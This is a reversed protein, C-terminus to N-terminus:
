SSDTPETGFLHQLVKREAARLHNHFTPQSIGLTEAIEQGSQTRPWNYFGSDIATRLVELQRDTLLSRVDDPATPRNTPADRKAVRDVTVDDGGSEFFTRIQDTTVTEPVTLWFRHTDSTAVGSQVWGDLDRVRQFVGTDASQIRLECRSSTSDVADVSLDWQEGELARQAGQRVQQAPLDATCTVSLANQSELTLSPIELETELESALTTLPTSSRLHVDVTQWDTVVTEPNDDIADLCLATLRGLTQLFTQDTPTGSAGRDAGVFLVGSSRKRFTVPIAYVELEPAVDAGGVFQEVVNRSSRVTQREYAKEVFQDVVDGDFTDLQVPTRDSQAWAALELSGDAEDYYSAFAAPWERVFSECAAQTFQERGSTLSCSTILQRVVSSEAAAAELDATLRQVRNKYSHLLGNREFHRLNTTVVEAVVDIFEREREGFAGVSTSGLALLGYEDLPVLLESRIDTDPEGTVQERDPVYRSSRAEFPNWLYEDDPTVTRDPEFRELAGSTHSELQLRDQGSERVFLAVYSNRVLEDLQRVTQEVLQERSTAANLEGLADRLAELGLMDDTLETIVGLIREDGDQEVVPILSCRVDKPEGEDTELTIDVDGPTDHELVEACRDEFTQEFSRPYPLREGQRETESWGFARRAEENWSNVRLDHTLTFAPRHIQEPWVDRRTWSDSTTTSNPDATSRIMAEEFYVVVVDSHGVVTVDHWQNSEVSYAEFQLVDADGDRQEFQEELSSDGRPRFISDAHQGILERFDGGFHNEMSPSAYVCYYDPSLVM